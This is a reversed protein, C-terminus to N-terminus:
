DTKSMKQRKKNGENSNEVDSDNAEEDVEDELPELMDDLHHPSRSWQVFNQRWELCDKLSLHANGPGGLDPVAVVPKVIAEVNALFFSLTAVEGNSFGGVEKVLPVFLDSKSVEKKDLNYGVSEIIAYVGPQLDCSGCNVGTDDTLSLLDIFGWLKCPLHGDSGWDIIAWDRWVKKSIICTCM